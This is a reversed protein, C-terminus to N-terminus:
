KTNNNRINLKRRAFLQSPLAFAKRGREESQRLDLWASKEPASPVTM